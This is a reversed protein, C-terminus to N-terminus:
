IGVDQRANSQITQSQPITQHQSGTSSAPQMALVALLLCPLVHLNTWPTTYAQTTEIRNKYKNAHTTEIRNKLNQGLVPGIAISGAVCHLSRCDRGAVHSQSRQPSSRTSSPSALVVPSCLHAQPCGLFGGHNITTSWWAVIKPLVLSM